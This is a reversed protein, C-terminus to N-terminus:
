NVGLVILHIGWNRITTLSSFPRHFHKKIVNKNKIKMIVIFLVVIIITNKYLEFRM